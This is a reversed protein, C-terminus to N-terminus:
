LVETFRSRGFIFLEALSTMEVMGLYLNCIRTQRKVYVHLKVDIIM